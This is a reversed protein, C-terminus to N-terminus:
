RLDPQNPLPGIGRRMGGHDGTVLEGSSGAYSIAAKRRVIQTIERHMPPTKSRTLDLDSPIILADHSPKTSHYAKGPQRFACKITRMRTRKTHTERSVKADSPHKRAATRVVPGLISFPAGM